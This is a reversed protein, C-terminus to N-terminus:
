KDILIADQICQINIINLYVKAINETLKIQLQNFSNIKIQMDTHQTILDM